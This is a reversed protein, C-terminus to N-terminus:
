RSGRKRPYEDDNAMRYRGNSVNKDGGCLMYLVFLFVLFQIAGPVGVIELSM